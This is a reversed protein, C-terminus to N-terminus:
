QGTASPMCYIFTHCGTYIILAKITRYLKLNFIINNRGRDIVGWARETYEEGM